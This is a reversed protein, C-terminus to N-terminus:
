PIQNNTRPFVVWVVSLVPRSTIMSLHWFDWPFVWRASFCQNHERLRGTRADLLKTTHTQLCRLLSWSAWLPFFDWLSVHKWSGCLKALNTIRDFWSPGFIWILYMSVFFWSASMGVLPLKVRSLHFWKNYKSLILWKLEVTQESVIASLWHHAKNCPHWRVYWGRSWTAWPLSTISTLIGPTRISVFLFSRPSGIDAAVSLGCRVITMFLKNFTRRWCAVWFHFSLWAQDEWSHFVSVSILSRDPLVRHLKLSLSELFEIKNRERPFGEHHFRAIRQSHSLAEHCVPAVQHQDELLLLAM